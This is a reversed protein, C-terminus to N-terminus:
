SQELFGPLTNFMLKKKTIVHDDHSKVSDSSPPINAKKSTAKKPLSKKVIKKASAKYNYIVTSVVFLPREKKREKGKNM